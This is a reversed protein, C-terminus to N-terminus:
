RALRRELHQTEQIQKKLRDAPFGVETLLIIECLVQLRVALNHMARPQGKLEPLKTVLKPDYHTYFNRFNGALEIEKAADEFIWTADYKEVLRKLRETASPEHSYRLKGELWNRDKKVQVADLIRKKRENQKEVAESKPEFDRRDFSELAQFMNLFRHEVYMSASRLTGFYLSYLPRLKEQQICWAELFTAFNERIDSLTFLMRWPDIDERLPAIPEANHHLRFYITKQPNETSESDMAGAQMEALRVAQGIGLSVFDAVLTLGRLLEEYSREDSSRVGLWAQQQIQVGSRNGFDPGTVSFDVSVSIGNSLTAKVGEPKAYTIAIPYLNASAFAYSLGSTNVWQDLNSYRGSLSTLRFEDASAFHVDYAIIGPRFVQFTKTLGPLGSRKVTRCDFLSLLKGDATTGVLLPVDDLAPRVAIPVGDTAPEADAEAFHGDILLRMGGRDGDEYLTGPLRESPAEPRWWQALKNETM